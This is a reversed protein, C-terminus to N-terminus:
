RKLNGFKKRAWEQLKKSSWEVKELVDGNGRYTWAAEVVGDCEPGSLWFPEFKFGKGGGRPEEMNQEHILIACHDSSYLPFHKVVANPFIQSWDMTAVARDLRERVFTGDGKGRVGGEKEQMSLIENFDGFLVMPDNHSGCLARLMDWTKHKIVLKPWGYVGVARWLTDGNEGVVKLTIHHKDYTLLHVNIDKWWIGLGGSRGNSSLCIGSSFGCKTKLKEFNHASIMTEMVFIINPNERWCWDRLTSVTLPNGLGQYNWSLIKM